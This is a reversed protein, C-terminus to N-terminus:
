RGYRFRKYKDKIKKATIRVAKSRKPRKIEIQIPEPGTKRKRKTRINRYKNSMKKATLIANKNMNVDQLNTDDNYDVTEADAIDLLNLPFLQTKARM